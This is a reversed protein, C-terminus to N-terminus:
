EEGGGIVKYEIDYKDESEYEVNLVSPLEEKWIWYFTSEMGTPKRGRGTPNLPSDRFSYVKDNEWIISGSFFKEVYFIDKEWHKFVKVHFRCEYGEESIFKLSATAFRSDKDQTVTGTVKKM